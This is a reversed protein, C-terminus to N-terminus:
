CHPVVHKFIIKWWVVHGLFLSCASPSILLLFLPMIYCSFLLQMKPTTACSYDFTTPSSKPLCVVWFFFMDYWTMLVQIYINNTKMPPYLYGRYPRDKVRSDSSNRTTPSVLCPHSLQPSSQSVMCWLSTPSLDLCIDSSLFTRNAWCTQQKM